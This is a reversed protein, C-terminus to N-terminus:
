SFYVSNRAIVTSLITMAKAPAYGESAMSFTGSVTLWDHSQAHRMNM